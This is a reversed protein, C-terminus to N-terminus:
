RFSPDLVEGGIRRMERIGDAITHGSSVSASVTASVYRNYHFLSRFLM